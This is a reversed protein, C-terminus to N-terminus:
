NSEWRVSQMSTQHQYRIQAKSALTMSDRFIAFIITVFNNEIKSFPYSVMDDALIIVINPQKKYLKKTGDHDLDEIASVLNLIILTHCCLFTGVTSTKILM